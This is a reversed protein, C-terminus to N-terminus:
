GTIEVHRPKAAESKPVTVTLVGDNLSATVGEPNVDGPLTTRFEFRGTRRSRRRRRRGEDDQPETIEGSIVIERDNIDVNVQDRSVGPLEVDIVYADDTESIDALPTWPASLAAPAFAMDGFAMSMLQGMRDYIDEFERSPDVLTINRASRRAPLQAM